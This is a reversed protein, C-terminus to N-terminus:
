VIDYQALDKKLTTLTDDFLCYYYYEDDLEDSLIAEVLQTSFREKILHMALDAKNNESDLERDKRKNRVAFYSQCINNIDALRIKANKLNDSDSLSPMNFYEDIIKIIKHVCITPNTYGHKRLKTVVLVILISIIGVCLIPIIVWLITNLITSLLLQTLNTKM